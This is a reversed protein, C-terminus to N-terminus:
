VEDVEHVYTDVEDPHLEDEHETGQVKDPISAVVENEVVARFMALKNGAHAEM